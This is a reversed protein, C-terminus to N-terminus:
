EITVRQRHKTKEGKCSLSVCECECMLVPARVINFLDVYQQMNMGQRTSVNKGNHATFSAQPQSDELIFKEDKSVTKNKAVMNGQLSPHNLFTQSIMM